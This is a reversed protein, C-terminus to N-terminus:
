KSQKPWWSNSFIACLPLPLKISNSRTPHVSWVEWVTIVVLAGATSLVHLTHKKVSESIQCMLLLGSQTQMRNSVILWWSTSFNSIYSLFSGQCALKCSSLLPLHSHTSLPLTIAAGIHGRYEKANSQPWWDPATYPKSVPFLHGLFVGGVTGGGSLENMGNAWFRKLKNELVISNSSLLICSPPSNLLFVFWIAWLFPSHLLIWHFSFIQDSFLDNSAANFNWNTVWDTRLILIVSPKRVNLTLYWLKNKGLPVNIVQM